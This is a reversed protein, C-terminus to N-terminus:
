EQWAITVMALPGMLGGAEELMEANQEPSSFGVGLAKCGM